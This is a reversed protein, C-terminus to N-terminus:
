SLGAAFKVNSVQLTAALALIETADSDAFLETTWYQHLIGQYDALILM